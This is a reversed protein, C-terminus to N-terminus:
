GDVRGSGRGIVDVLQMGLQRARFAATRVEALDGCVDPPLSAEHGVLDDIILSTYTAIAGLDNLLEHLVSIARDDSTPSIAATDDGRDSRAM